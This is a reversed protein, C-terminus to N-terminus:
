CGAQQLCLFVHEHETINAVVQLMYEVMHFLVSNNYYM